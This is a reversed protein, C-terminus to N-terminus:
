HMCGVYINSKIIFSKKENNRIITLASDASNETEFIGTVLAITKEGADPQYFNLYELSLNESPFRRPYYAGAYMDDEDDDPLAILNKDRNFYRGMTDIEIHLQSNLAMMKNRLVFYDTNTDAVVVFYDAYDQDVVEDSIDPESSALPEKQNGTDAVNSNINTNTKRDAETNCASVAFALLILLNRVMANFTIIEISKWSM